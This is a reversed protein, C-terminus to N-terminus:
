KYAEESNYEREMGVKFHKIQTSTRDFVADEGECPLSLTHMTEVPYTPTSTTQWRTKRQKHPRQSM